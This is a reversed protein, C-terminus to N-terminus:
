TLYSDEAARSYSTDLDVTVDMQDSIPLVGSPLPQGVALPEAWVAIM